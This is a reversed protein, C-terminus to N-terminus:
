VCHTLCTLCLLVHLLCLLALVVCRPLCPLCLLEHPLCLLAREVCRPLCPLCLLGLEVFCGGAHQLCSCRGACATSIAPAPPAPHPGYPRAPQNSGGCRHWLCGSNRHGTRTRQPQAPRHKRGGACTCLPSILIVWKYLSKGLPTAAPWAPLQPCRLTTSLSTQLVAQSSM